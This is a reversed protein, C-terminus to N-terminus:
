RFRRDYERSIRILVAGYEESTRTFDVWEFPFPEINTARYRLFLFENFSPQAQEVIRREAEAAEQYPHKNKKGDTTFDRDGEYGRAVQASNIGVIGICVPDGAGRKFQGVQKVLDGIVRDIQKIMAKALIKVEAGVEVTAIPGRAVRYGQDEIPEVDPVLEGFTGDGRRARIGRRLNQVNLVRERGDIREQLLTSRGVRYLDEYLQMAILDGLSSDRHIYRKGAFTARFAELLRYEM